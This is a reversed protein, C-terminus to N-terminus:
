VLLNFQNTLTAKEIKPFFHITSLIHYMMFDLVYGPYSLVIFHILFISKEKFFWFGKVHIYDLFLLDKSFLISLEMICINLKLKLSSNAVLSFFEGGLLIEWEGWQPFYWSGRLEIQFVRGTTVYSCFKTSCECARSNNTM